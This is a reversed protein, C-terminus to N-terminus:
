SLISSTRLFIAVNLRPSKNPHATPQVHLQEEKGNRVVTVEGAHGVFYAWEKHQREPTSSVFYDKHEQYVQPLVKGDLALIQDGRKLGMDNNAQLVYLCDQYYRLKFGPPQTEKLGFWVHSLIGFSAIYCADPLSLGRPEDPRHYASSIRRSKCGQHREKYLFGRAYNRRSPWFIETKKM